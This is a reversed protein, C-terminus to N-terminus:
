LTFMDFGNGFIRDNEFAGIDIHPGIFRPKGVVDVGKKAPPDTGTDVLPSNRALEFNICIPGAVYCDAFQPDVSIDSTFGASTSGPTIVDIDNTARTNASFVGFDSGGTDHDNWFINNEVSMVAGSAGFLSLGGPSSLTSTHNGVVTNSWILSTGSASYLRAAGALVGRNGNLLNNTFYVTGAVAAAYVGGGNGNAGTAENSLFQNSNLAISAAGVNLGGGPGISRGAVFRIGTITVAGGSNQILLPRRVNEGSLVTGAGALNFFPFPPPCTSIDDYSGSISLDRGESSSFHLSTGLDTDIQYDGSKILIDDDEGNTEAVTLAGQIAASTDVCFTHADVAAIRVSALVTFIFPTFRM